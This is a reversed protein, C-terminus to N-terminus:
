LPLCGGSAFLVLLLPFPTVMVHRTYSALSCTLSASCYKTVEAWFCDFFLASLLFGAISAAYYAHVRAVLRPARKGAQGGARGAARECVTTGFKLFGGFFLSVWPSKVLKEM